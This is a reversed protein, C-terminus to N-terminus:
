LTRINVRYGTRWTNPQYEDNGGLILYLFLLYLNQTPADGVSQNGKADL